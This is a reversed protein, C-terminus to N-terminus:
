AEVYCWGSRPAHTLKLQECKKDRNFSCNHRKSCRFCDLGNFNDLTKMFESIEKPKDFPKVETIHIAYGNNGKLYNHFEDYSLRSARLLDGLSYFKDVFSNYIHCPMGIAFGGFGEYEIEGVKDCWFRAVVKGNIKDKDEVMDDTWLQFHNTPKEDHSDRKLTDRNKWGAHKHNQTVYIYVWGVYDKPFRKRVLVSLDGNLLDRSERPSLVVIMAKM